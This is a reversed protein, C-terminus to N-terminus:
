GSGVRDEFILAWGRGREAQIHCGVEAEKLHRRLWGLYTRVQAASVEPKHWAEAALAPADFYRDPNQLLFRLLQTERGTLPVGGGTPGIIGLQDDLDVPALAAHRQQWFVLGSRFWALRAAVAGEGVDGDSNSGARVRDLLQDNLEVLRFYIEIWRRADATRATERDEGDILPM